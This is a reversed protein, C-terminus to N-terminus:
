TDDLRRLADWPFPRWFPTDLATTGAHVVFWPGEPCAAEAKEPGRCSPKIVYFGQAPMFGQGLLLARRGDPARAEDLILVTHGPAGPLVVFDGPRLEAPAVRAAQLSLSGTNAWTFVADLYRRFAPHDAAPARGHVWEIGNGKGVPREGRLYRGLSIPTGAFARYTMDREGRGWRWEAHLRIVADACQMLDATGADIAVVAAVHAHDAPYVVSGRYSKVPTGAASLPLGRLWAGFSGTALERRTFGPPPAFRAELPEVAAPAEAASGDALWPYDGRRLAPPRAPAPRLPAVSSVAAKSPEAPEEAKPVGSVRTRDPACSASAFLGVSLAWVLRSRMQICTARRRGLTVRPAPGDM